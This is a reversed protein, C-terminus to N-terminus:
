CLPPPPSCVVKSYALSTSAITKHTHSLWLYSGSGKELDGLLPSRMAAIASERKHILDVEQEDHPFYHM